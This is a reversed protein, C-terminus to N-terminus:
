MVSVVEGLSLGSLLEKWALWQATLVIGPSWIELLTSLWFLSARPNLLAAERGIVWTKWAHSFGKYMVEAPRHQLHGLVLRTQFGLVRLVVLTSLQTWSIFGHGAINFSDKPIQPPAFYYFGVSLEPSAWSKCACGWAAPRAMGPPLLCARCVQIVVRTGTVCGASALSPQTWGHVSRRHGSAPFWYLVRDRLLLWSLKGDLM